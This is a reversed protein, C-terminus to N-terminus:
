NIATNKKDKVSYAAFGLANEGDHLLLFTQGEQMQQRLAEPTYIIGFMYEIQEKTLIPRYTPEWIAAALQNITPIDEASAKRIHFQNSM